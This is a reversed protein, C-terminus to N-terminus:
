CCSMKSLRRRYGQGQALNQFYRFDAKAEKALLMVNAQPQYGMLM